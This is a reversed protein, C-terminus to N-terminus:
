ASLNGFRARVVGNEDFVKWCGNAYETRAGGGPKQIAFNDANIVMNGTSGNNNAEWGTVYGNVDLRVAARALATNAKGDVSTVTENITTVSAENSYATMNQGQELKVQRWSITNVGGGTKYAVLRAMIHTANGPSQVTMKLANRSAGDNSFDHNAARSPGGHQTIYNGGGDYWIMELYVHGTGGSHLFYASDASFTYHTGGFIPVRESEIYNYGEFNTGNGTVRGWGSSTHPSWGGHTGAWYNMGLQFGGNRLLNPSGSQVITTLNAVTSNATAIATQNTSISAQQASATLAGYGPSYPSPGSAQEYTQRLMPRCMWAYSDGQGGYTPDKVFVIHARAANSPSQAKGWCRMWANIDRGGPKSATNTDTYNSSIGNGNADVWDVRVYANCRHAATYASVEYWKGGEVSIQDSHFQSWQSTDGNPQNIGINHENTPRWDDGSQDRGFAFGNNNFPSYFNWGVTSTIFSTEPILNGGGTSFTAALNASSSAAAARDNAWSASGAAASASSSAEGAKISATNASGSASSARIGAQNAEYLANSYSSSAASASDAAAKESTIDEITIGTMHWLGNPAGGTTQYEFIPKWLSKWNSDVTFEVGIKRFGPSNVAIDNECNIAVADGGHGDANGDWINNNTRLLWIKVTACNTGHSYFWGTVRYRRGITKPVSEKFMIRNYTGGQGPGQATIYPQPWGADPGNEFSFGNGNDGSYAYADKGIPGVFNPFTKAFQAQAGAQANSASVQSSSAANASQSAESAKSSATSASGAAAGASQGASNASNSALGAQQSATSASGSANSASQSAENRYTYANSEHGAAAVRHDWAAGEHAGAAQRNLWSNSENTAANTQSTNAASASNGAESAKIAATSASGAAAQASGYANYEGTIDRIEVSQVVFVGQSDLRFLPRVWQVGQDLLTNAHVDLTHTAWASGWGLQGQLIAVGTNVNNWQSGDPKIGIAYIAANRQTDNEHQAALLWKVTIRLVHDRVLPLRGKTSIHPSFTPNNQVQLIRGYTGHDYASYRGDSELTNTGGGFDWTWNKLSQFTAPMLAQAATTASVEASQAASASQGAQSASSSAGSASGAAASASGAAEGAKTSATNASASASSAHQGAETSKSSATSASGAAAGASGSAQGASNAALGAQESASSASGSANTASQSAQNRFTEAESRFQLANVAQQYAAEKQQEANTASSAANTASGSAASASQEAGTKSIAASSASQAAANASGSSHYEGTIDRIEISQVAYNGQSDIRFLPRTWQCGNDILSNTHVELTHTAWFNGWGTQGESIQLPTNISNWYDGTTASDPRIGIAFLWANVPSGLQGGTLAWKVTIRYVKDRVLAIRGKPVIHPSFHPVNYVDLIRGLTGHDYAWHRNDTSLDGNGEGWNWTWNKIDGFTSPMLAQATTSASVQSAMAASASQSAESAKSTATSASGAAAQASGNANSAQQQAQDRATESATKAADSAARSAESNGAFGAAGDKASVALDKAANAASQAAQADTKAQAANNSATQANTEHQAAANASAAASATSGYTAQLDAAIQEAAEIDAKLQESSILGGIADTIADIVAEAPKGAVNTGVPAGVTANDEPKGTGSIKDWQAASAIEQTLAIKASYVAEWAGRFAVRDIPTDHSGNDWAPSLGNLYGNLDNFRLTYTAAFAAVDWGAADSLLKNYDATEVAHQQVWYKKEARDLVGDAVMADLRSLQIAVDAQTQQFEDLAAQFAEDTVYGEADYIAPSIESTTHVSWCRSHGVSVKWVPGTSTKETLDIVLPLTSRDSRLQGRSIPAYFDGVQWRGAGDPFLYGGAEYVARYVIDAVNTAEKAYFFWEADAFAGFTGFIATPQIERILQQTITKVTNTYVGYHLAGQVDCTLKQSPQGGLRFLGQANCTAWQGPQLDLAILENYTTVNASSAALEQAYEYVTPIGAIPGYGHVQYVMYVTDIQVPEINQCFGHARPKLIGKIGAGGELGGTGAYEEYLAPRQLDAESGLLAVSAYIEQRNFGSVRGSFVQTYETFPAGDEGYWCSALANSWDYSSWEENGYADSCIFELDGYSITPIQLQGSSMLNFSFTPLTELLPLWQKNDLNVGANSVGRRSM